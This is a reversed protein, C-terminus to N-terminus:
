GDFLSAENGSEGRQRHPLGGNGWHRDTNGILYDIINMMYYSYADKKLIFAMRDMDRNVCYIDIFEM